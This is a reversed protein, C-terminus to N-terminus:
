AIENVNATEWEKGETSKLLQPYDVLAGTDPHVAKHM